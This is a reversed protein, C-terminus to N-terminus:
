GARRGRARATLARVVLAAGVALAGFVVQGVVGISAAVVVVLPERQMLGSAM